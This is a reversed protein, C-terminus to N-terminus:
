KKARPAKISLKIAVDDKILNDAQGAYVIGFDKRNISFESTGSVADAGVTLTAPFSIKKKVGHLDLEGTITHTAGKDGGAKIESSTFTAKSFKAVEFFDQKKLHEDLKDSDTKVSGLDIEVTVKGGEAKGGALTITGTFKGFSGDHKGTVKAGVFGISSAPDMTLTEGGAAPAASVAASAQHSAAPAASSVTAKPPPDDCGALALALAAPFALRAIRPISM